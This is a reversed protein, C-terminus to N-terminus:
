DISIHQTFAKLDASAAAGSDCKKLCIFAANWVLGKRYGQVTSLLYIWEPMLAPDQISVNLLEKEKNYSVNVSPNLRMLVNVADLYGGADFNIKTLKPTNAKQIAVAVAQGGSSVVKKVQITAFIMGVGCLVIVAPALLSIFPVVKFGNKLSADISNFPNKM